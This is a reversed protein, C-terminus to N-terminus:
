HRVTRPRWLIDTIELPVRCYLSVTLGRLAAFSKPGMKPGVHHAVVKSGRKCRPEFEKEVLGILHGWVTKPGFSLSKQTPTWRLPSHTLDM